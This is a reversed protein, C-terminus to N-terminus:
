YAMGHIGGVPYTIKKMIAFYGPLYLKKDAIFGYNKEPPFLIPIKTNPLM